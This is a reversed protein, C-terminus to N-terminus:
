ARGWVSEIGSDMQEQLVWSVPESFHRVACSAPLRSFQIRSEHSVHAVHSHVDTDESTHVLHVRCHEPQWTWSRSVQGLWAWGCPWPRPGWSGWAAVPRQPCHGELYM